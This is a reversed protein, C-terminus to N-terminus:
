KTLNAEISPRNFKLYDEAKSDAFSVKLTPSSSRPNTFLQDVKNRIADDSKTYADYIKDKLNREADGVNLKANAVKTEEVSVEEDRTGRLLKDLKAQQSKINANAQALQASVEAHDLEILAQGAWVHSGVDANSAVVRGSKEFSLNVSKAPEVKGTVSVEQVVDGRKVAVYEYKQAPAKKLFFFWVVFVFVILALTSLIWHKRIYQLIRTM